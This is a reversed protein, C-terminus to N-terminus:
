AQFSKNWIVHSFFKKACSREKQLHRICKCKEFYGLIKRVKHHVNRFETSLRIVDHMATKGTIGSLWISQIYHLNKVNYNKSQLVDIRMCLDIRLCFQIMNICEIETRNYESRRTYFVSSFFSGILKYEIILLLWRM